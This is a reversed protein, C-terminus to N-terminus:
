QQAMVKKLAAEFRGYFDDLAIRLKETDPGPEVRVLLPPLGPSYSLFDCFPLGTIVLHGHVQWRYTSPLGGDRLYEVQTEAQPCKLELAGTTTTETGVLGDPSAGFRGCESLCFGGNYVDLERVLCYYRRAEEETQQGWRMARNTYSEIREPPILSLREGILQNILKHQQNSAKGQAPTLIMDFRSATPVGNRLKFWEEQGQTVNFYKM